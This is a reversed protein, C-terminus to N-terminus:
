RNRLTVLSCSSHYWARYVVCRVTREKLLVAAASCIGPYHATGVKVANRHDNRSTISHLIKFLFPAKLQLDSVVNEWKFLPLQDVAIARFPSSHTKKCLYTCEKNLEGLLLTVISEKIDDQELVAKAISEAHGGLLARAVKSGSTGLKKTYATPCSPTSVTM